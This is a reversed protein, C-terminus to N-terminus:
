SLKQEWEYATKVILELDDYKPTWGLIDKIKDAKSMLTEADGARRPGEDVKFDIGTVKKMAAIVEKVTFGHGYGCNMVESNGGKLLYQIGDVHAQALDDVHIYDRICTGDRTEYDTGFVAMKERKGCALESAVKILHTSNPGSQGLKGEVNAGAVNFYRLAVYNFKEEANSVDELMWETMLKSRGYPNVPNVPSEETCLGGEINGYVAATSSFIFNNVNNEVCLKILGLTKQTNNEYYLVPKEVSEPVIISGAFNLCAKFKEAKMLADLEKTDGIDMKVLRGALINEERGTSLNDVVVVDFGAKGLLNVVHSGIYGAGGTVLVKTSM